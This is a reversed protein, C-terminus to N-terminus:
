SDSVIKQIGDKPQFIYKVSSNRFFDIEYLNM